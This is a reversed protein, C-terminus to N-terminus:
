PTATAGPLTLIFTSGRDQESRAEITGQHVEAIWKAISLGLGAGGSDRSRSKDARYFREFVRALDGQPIGIGTDSVQVQPNGNASLLRVTIEGEPTYKVANDIVILLLRRLASPDGIAPVPSDPVETRFRLNRVGALKEGQVSAERVVQALDLERRDLTAKGADARALTLLNEILDTTRVSEAHVDELAERYEETTRQKRLALEATTRILAVPTRLEHSADATFETIRRFASEIRGLMQNLTESLRQLEDQTEPVPLRRALSQEGISRAADIIQNVPQLARRSMWWGGATAILLVAPILVILAWAYGSLGEKLEHMPVAVQITYPKGLVEVRRALLRLEAGAVTRDESVGAAPVDRPLRIPVGGNELPASRYLWVGDADCVQFLDGGPGLVSHEKFEDRIEEVSLAGIQENMFKRVGEVRDRLTEDATHFLVHRVAIWSVGGFAVLALALVASYWVALRFRISRRKM